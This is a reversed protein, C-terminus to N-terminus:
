PGGACNGATAAIRELLYRRELRGDYRAHFRVCEAHRLRNQCQCRYDRKQSSEHRSGTRPEGPNRTGMREKAGATSIKFTKICRLGPMIDDAGRDLRWVDARVSCLSSIIRDKPIRTQKISTGEFTVQTYDTVRGFEDYNIRFSASDRPVVGWLDGGRTTVIEQFATGCLVADLVGQWIVSDFDVHPQDLWEQVRDKLGENGPECVLQWGPSLVFLPYTDIAEGVPGGQQYIQRWKWVKARRKTPDLDEASTYTNLNYLGLRAFM